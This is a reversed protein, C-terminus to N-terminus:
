VQGRPAKNAIELELDMVPAIMLTRLCALLLPRQVKKDKIRDVFTQVVLCKM